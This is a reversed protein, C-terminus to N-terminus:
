FGRQRRKQAAGYAAAGAAAPQSPQPSDSQAAQEKLRETAADLATILHELDPALARAEEPPLAVARACLDTVRAELAQRDVPAGGLGAIDAELAAIEQKLDTM